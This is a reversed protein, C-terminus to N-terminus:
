HMVGREGAMWEGESSYSPSSFATMFAIAVALIEICYRYNLVATTLADLDLGTSM